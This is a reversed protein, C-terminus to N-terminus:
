GLIRFIIGTMSPFQWFRCNSAFRICYATVAILTSLSSYKAMLSTDSVAVASVTVNGGRRLGPLTDVPDVLNVPWDGEDSLLWPPGWWLDHSRLEHGKCGRSAVDSPNGESPVYRWKIDLGSNNIQTVRNGEFTQLRHPPYKLWSLAITSDSWGFIDHVVVKDNISDLVYTLLKVALAAASLELKPITLKSKIPAVKSKAMMLFIRVQGSTTVTRIYVAAGFAKESADSFGHLSCHVVEDALVFRNIKLNEMAPLHNFIHTWEKIIEPTPCEDWTLKLLWIQQLLLKGQLIVPTIWGMPDFMRALVSLIARKTWVVDPDLNTHYTFTDAVPNWQIGLIKVYGPGDTDFLHPKERHDSPIDELLHEDNSMWKRLEFGGLFLLHIIDKKLRQAEPLTPAGSLIDDMYVSTQLVHAAEALGSSDMEGQDSEGKPTRSEDEALQRLTRIALYPSCKMGYTVTTLAFLQLPLKPSERWFILQYRQDERQIEIMRYMMRIDTSFAIKHLRFRCIVQMVDHQLKPGAHLCDNLSVGTSTPCSADFVVRIKESGAKFIGHHPIVYHSAELDGSFPVMHGLQQYERMFDVYKSSLGPNAQLRKELTHFRRRAQNQSDGLEPHDALFPLRLAYRGTADRQHTQEFHVECPEEKPNKMKVPVEEVEWFKELIADTNAFYVQVSSKSERNVQCAGQLIYGFITNMAWPLGEPRIIEGGLFIDGLLDAGILMDIKASKFFQDDALHLGPYCDMLQSPLSWSPLDDAVKNLVLATTVLMATARPLESDEFLEAYKAKSTYYSNSIEKFVLMHKKRILSRDRNRWIELGLDLNEVHQVLHDYIALCTKINKIRHKIREKGIVNVEVYKYEFAKRVTKM